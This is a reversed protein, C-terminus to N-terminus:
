SQPRHQHASPPNAVSQAYSAAEQEVPDRYLARVAPDALSDLWEHLPLHMPRDTWQEFALLFVEEVLDSLQFERGLDHEIQPYRQVWRGIHLRVHTEQGALAQRFAAYDLQQVAEGLKGADPEATAIYPSDAEARREAVQLAQRDPNMRYADVRRQVQELCHSLAMDLSENRDGTIITEGPLKLKAQAHFTNSRSHHVITLWLESAPFERVAQGLRELTPQMRTRSEAPLECEKADINVRLRDADLSFQMTHKRKM